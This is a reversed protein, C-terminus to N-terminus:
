VTESSSGEGHATLCVGGLLRALLAVVVVVLFAAVVVVLVATM